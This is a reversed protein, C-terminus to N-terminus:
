IKIYEWTPSPRPVIMLTPSPSLPPSPFPQAPTHRCPPPATHAVPISHRHSSPLLPSPPFALLFPLVSPLHPPLSSSIPLVPSLISSAYPPFFLMFYCIYKPTNLAYPHKSTHQLRLLLLLTAKLVTISSSGNKNSYRRRRVDGGKGTHTGCPRDGLSGSELRRGHPHAPQAPHHRQARDSRASHELELPLVKSAAWRALPAM